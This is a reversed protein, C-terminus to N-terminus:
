ALAVTMAPHLAFLLHCQLRPWSHQLNRVILTSLPPTLHIILPCSALAEVGFRSGHSVCKTEVVALGKAESRILETNDYEALRNVAVGVAPLDGAGKLHGAVLSALEPGSQELIASEAGLGLAARWLRVWDPAM